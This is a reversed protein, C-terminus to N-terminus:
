GSAGSSALETTLIQDLDLKEHAYRLYYGVYGKIQRM